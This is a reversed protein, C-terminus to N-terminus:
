APQNLALQMKWSARIPAFLSKPDDIKTGGLRYSTSPFIVTSISWEQAATGKCLCRDLGDCTWEWESYSCQQLRVEHRRHFSSIEKVLPIKATRLGFSFARLLLSVHKYKEDGVLECFIEPQLCDSVWSLSIKQVAMSPAIYDPPLKGSFGDDFGSHVM